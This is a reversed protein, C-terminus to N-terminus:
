ADYRVIRALWKTRSALGGSDQVSGKALDWGKERGWGGCALEPALAPLHECDGGNTSTVRHSYSLVSENARAFAGHDWGRAAGM